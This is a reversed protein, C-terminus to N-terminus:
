TEYAEAYKTFHDAVPNLGYKKIDPLSGLSDISM